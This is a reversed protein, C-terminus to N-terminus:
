RRVSFFVDRHRRVSEAWTFSGMRRRAADALRDRTASSDLLDLVATAMAPVDGDPVLVGADGVVEPLSTNDFAVVPTGCAIAEAAPLGFGEARSTVLLAAAGQYEAALDPVWGMVDIRDRYRSQALEAQLHEHMWPDQRGLVRLRHPAGAAVLLDWAQALERFGKHPGWSSVALLYPHEADPGNGPRFAPDIGHHVVHVRAPDLGLLEVGQAASSHSVAIVADARRLAPAQRRWRRADRALLPHPFVLPTLDHLTQVLPVASSRPVVLAPSLYVDVELRRIERPLIATQVLPGLRHHDVRWAPARTVGPPLSTGTPALATVALDPCGTLGRLLGKVYTGIGRDASGDALSSADIGVRLPEM